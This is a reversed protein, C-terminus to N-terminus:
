KKKTLPVESFSDAVANDSFKSGRTGTLVSRDFNKQRRTDSSKESTGLFTEKLTDVADKFLLITKHRQLDHINIYPALITKVFSINGSSKQFLKDKAPLVILVNQKIPLKKLLTVIDKTKPKESKYGELGIIQHDKAKVSLASFLATQRQKKPMMKTFNRNNRPGFIIAGHRWQAARISGQRANGTGKQKYPKRGGGSVDERLKTHAINTRGNTLQRVLAQHILDKNYKTEFIEKPLKLTGNKVGEQTYLDIEM